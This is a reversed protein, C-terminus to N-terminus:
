YLDFDIYILEDAEYDNLRKAQNLVNGIVQYHNGYTKEYIEIRKLIEQVIWDSM